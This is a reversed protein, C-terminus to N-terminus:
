KEPSQEEFILENLSSIGRDRLEKMMKKMRRPNHNTPQREMTTAYNTAWCSVLFRLNIDMIRLWWEGLRSVVACSTQTPVLIAM